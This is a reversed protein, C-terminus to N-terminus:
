PSRSAPYRLTLAGIDVWDANFLGELEPWAIWRAADARTMYKFLAARVDPEQFADINWPIGHPDICLSHARGDIALKAEIAADQSFTYQLRHPMRKEWAEIAPGGITGARRIV